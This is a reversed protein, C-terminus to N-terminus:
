KIGKEATVIVITKVIFLEFALFRTKVKSKVEDQDFDFKIRCTLKYKQSIM